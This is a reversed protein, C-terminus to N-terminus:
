TPGASRWTEVPNHRLEMVEEVSSTESWLPTGTPRELTRSYVIKPM